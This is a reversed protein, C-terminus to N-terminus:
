ADQLSMKDFQEPTISGAAKLGTLTQMREEPPMSPEYRFVSGWLLDDNIVVESAVTEGRMIAEQEDKPLNEFRRFDDGVTHWDKWVEAVESDAVSQNM